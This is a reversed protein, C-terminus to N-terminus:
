RRCRIGGLGSRHGHDALVLQGAAQLVLGAVQGTLQVDVPQDVVFAVPYQAQQPLL